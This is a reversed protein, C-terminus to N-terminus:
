ANLGTTQKNVYINFAIIVDADLNFLSPIRKYVNTSVAISTLSQCDKMKFKDHYYM